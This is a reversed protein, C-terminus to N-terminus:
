FDVAADAILIVDLALEADVKAILVFVVVPIQVVRRVVCNQVQKDDMGLGLDFRYEVNENEYQDNVLADRIHQEDCEYNLILKELIIHEPDHLPEEIKVENQAPELPVLIVECLHVDHLVAGDGFVVHAAPEDDVQDTDYWDRQEVRALFVSRDFEQPQWPQDSDGLQKVDLLDLRYQLLQLSRDLRRLINLQQIVLQEKVLHHSQEKEECHQGVEHAADPEDEGM